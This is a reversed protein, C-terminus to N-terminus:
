SFIFVVYFSCVPFESADDFFTFDSNFFYIVVGDVRRRFIEFHTSFTRRSRRRVSLYFVCAELGLGLVEFNDELIRSSSSKDELVGVRQQTASVYLGFEVRCSVFRHLSKLSKHRTSVLRLTDLKNWCPPRVLSPSRKYVLKTNQARPTCVRFIFLSLM